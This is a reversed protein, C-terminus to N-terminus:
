NAQIASYHWIIHHANDIKFYVVEKFFCSIKINVTLNGKLKRKSIFRRIVQQTFVTDPNLYSSQIESNFWRTPPSAAPHLSLVLHGCKLFIDSWVCERTLQWLFTLTVGFFHEIPDCKSGLKDSATPSWLKSHSSFSRNSRPPKSLKTCGRAEACSQWISQLSITANRQKM